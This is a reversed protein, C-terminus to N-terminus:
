KEIRLSNKNIQLLKSDLKKILITMTLPLWVLGTLYGLIVGKIM